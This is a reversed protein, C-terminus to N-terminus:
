CSSRVVRQDGDFDERTRAGPSSSDRAPPRQPSCLSSCKGYSIGAPAARHSHRERRVLWRRSVWKEQSVVHFCDALLTLPQFLGVSLYRVLGDAELQTVVSGDVADWITLMGDWSGTIVHQDDATFTCCWVADLSDALVLCPLPPIPGQGCNPIQWLSASTDQSAAVLLTGATNFCVDHVQSCMLFRIDCCTICMSRRQPVQAPCHAGM